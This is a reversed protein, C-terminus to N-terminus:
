ILYETQGRLRCATKQGDHGDDPLSATVAGEMALQQWNPMCSNLIHCIVYFAMYVVYLVHVHPLNTTSQPLQTTTQSTAHTPQSLTTDSPFTKSNANRTASRFGSVPCPKSRASKLGERKTTTIFVSTAPPHPARCYGQRPQTVGAPPRLTSAATPSSPESSPSLPSTDPWPQDQTTTNIDKRGM